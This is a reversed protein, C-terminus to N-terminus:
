PGRSRAKIEQQICALLVTYSGEGGFRHICEALVQSPHMDWNANLAAYADREEKICARKVSGMSTGSSNTIKECYHDIDYLPFQQANVLTGHMVALATSGIVKTRLSVSRM